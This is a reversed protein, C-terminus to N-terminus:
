KEANVDITESETTALLNNIISKIDEFHHIIDFEWFRLIIYGNRNAINTNECLSYSCKLDNEAYFYRILYDNLSLGHQIKLHSTFRGQKNHNIEFNCLQSEKANYFSM